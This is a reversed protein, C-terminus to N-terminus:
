AARLLRLVLGIAGLAAAVGLAAVAIGAPASVAATALLFASVAAAAVVIGALTGLRRVLVPREQAIRGDDDLSWWALEAALLLLAGVVAAGGDATAHGHRSVIYSAGAALVAWPVTLPWHLVLGLALVACALLGLIVVLTAEGGQAGVAAYASAAALAALSM